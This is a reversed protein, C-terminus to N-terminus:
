IGGCCKIFYSFLKESTPVDRFLKVEEFIPTFYPVYTLDFKYTNEIGRSDVVKLTYGNTNFNSDTFGSTRTTNNVQDYSITAGYQGTASFTFKPKSLNAIFKNQTTVLFFDNKYYAM